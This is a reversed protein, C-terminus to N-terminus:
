THTHSHTVTHTHARCAHARIHIAATAASAPALFLLIVSPIARRKPRAWREEDVSQKGHICSRADIYATRTVYM